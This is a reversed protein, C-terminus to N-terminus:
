EFMKAFTEISKNFSNRQDLVKQKYDDFDQISSEYNDMSYIILNVIEDINNDISEFKYKNLIPVDINNKASGNKSTIVICDHFVSERPIREPGPFNGFDIYVKAKGQIDSVEKATLNELPVFKIKVERLKLAEIIKNTYELGKTPNYILIDEKTNLRESTHDSSIPGCLYQMSKKSILKEELFSRVYECNYLHFISPNDFNFHNWRYQPVIKTHKLVEIVLPSFYHSLKGMKSKIRNEQTSLFYFDLSLWWIVKKVYKFKSLFGTETEPVIVVTDLKDEIENVISVEYNPLISKSSKGDLYYINAQYGLNNLIFALQHLSEGGGNMKYIPCCIIFKM